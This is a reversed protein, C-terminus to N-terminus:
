FQYTLECRDILFSSFSKGEQRTGLVNNRKHPHKCYSRFWRLLNGRIEYTSLKSLLIDHDLSLFGKKSMQFYLPM